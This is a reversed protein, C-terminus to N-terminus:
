RKECIPGIGNAISEPVTLKRGCMGCRGEHWFEIREFQEANGSLIQKWVWSFALVSLTDASIRATRSSGLFFQGNRRIIGFYSYNRWNNPGTLVSVFHPSKSGDDNEKQNVRYTYRNGNSPNVITFYANGGTVFRRVAALETLQHRNGTM